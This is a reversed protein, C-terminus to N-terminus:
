SLGMQKSSGSPDKQYVFIIVEMVLKFEESQQSISLSLLYNERSRMVSPFDPACLHEAVCLWFTLWFWFYKEQARAM